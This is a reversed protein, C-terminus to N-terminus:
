PSLFMAPASAKRREVSSGDNINMVILHRERESTRFPSARRVAAVCTTNPTAFTQKLKWVGRGWCGGRSRDNAMASLQPCLPEQSCRECVSAHVCAYATHRLPPSSGVQKTGSPTNHTYRSTLTSAQGQRECLVQLENM